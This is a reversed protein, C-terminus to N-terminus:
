SPTKMVSLLALRRRKERLISLGNDQQRMAERLKELAINQIQRIRERTVGFREGIEQLTRPQVGRLGFRLEIIQRERDDLEKMLCSDMLGIFDAKSKADDPRVAAEDEVISALSEGSDDSLPTDLSRQSQAMEKLRALDGEKIGVAESLEALTPPRQIEEELLGEIRIMLRIKDGMHVPLRITSRQNALGRRVSQKIWHAAYTSFKAGKDPDVRRAAEMLGINGEAILDELSLGYGEYDRAITVVLRLNREVLQQWAERNGQKSQLCLRREEEASLLPISGIENFYKRLGNTIETM